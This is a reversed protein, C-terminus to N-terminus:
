LERKTHIKRYKKDNKNRIKLFLTILSIKKLIYTHYNELRNESNIVDSLNQKKRHKYKWIHLVFDFYKGFRQLIYFVLIQLSIYLISFLDKFPVYNLKYFIHVTQVVLIIDGELLISFHHYKKCFEICNISRYKFKISKKLNEYRKFTLKTWNQSIEQYIYVNIYKIAM